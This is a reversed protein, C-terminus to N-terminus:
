ILSLVIAGLLAGGIGAIIDHGCLPCGEGIETLGGIAFQLGATALWFHRKGAFPLAALGIEALRKADRGSSARARLVMLERAAVAIGAIALYLLNATATVVAADSGMAAYESILHAGIGGLVVCALYLWRLTPVAHQPKPASM